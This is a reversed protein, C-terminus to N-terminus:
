GSPWDFGCASYVHGYHATVHRPRFRPSPKSSGCEILTLDWGIGDIPGMHPGGSEGDQRLAQVSKAEPAIAVHYLLGRATVADEERGLDLEFVSRGGNGNGNCVGTVRDKSGWLAPRVREGLWGVSVYEAERRVRSYFMREGGGM